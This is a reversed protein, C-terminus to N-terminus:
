ELHVWAELVKTLVGTLMPLLVAVYSGLATLPSEEIRHVMAWTARDFKAEASAAASVLADERHDLQIATPLFVLAMFGSFILGSALTLSSALGAREGGPELSEGSPSLSAGWQYLRFVQYILAALFAGASYLLTRFWRIREGLETASCSSVRRSVLVCAVLLFLSLPIGVGNATNVVLQVRPKANFLPGLIADSAKSGVFGPNFILLLVMGVIVIGGITLVAGWERRGLLGRYRRMVLLSIGLSWLMVLSLVLSSSGWLVLHKVDRLSAPDFKLEQPALLLYYTGYVAMMGGVCIPGLWRTMWHSDDM